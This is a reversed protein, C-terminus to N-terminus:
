PVTTWDTRMEHTSESVGSSTSYFGCFIRCSIPACFAPVRTTIIVGIGTKFSVALSTSPTSLNQCLSQSKSPDHSIELVADGRIRDCGIDDQQQIVTRWRCRVLVEVHGCLANLRHQGSDHLLHKKQRGNGGIQGQVSGSGLLM